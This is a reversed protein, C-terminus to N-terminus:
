ALRWVEMPRGGDSERWERKARKSSQLLNLAQDIRSSATHRQFLHSIATRNLEGFGLAELIRDAVPDGTADGFVYRASAACYDWLALARLLHPMRISNSGDLAAYIM